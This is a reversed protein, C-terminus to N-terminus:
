TFELYTATESLGIRQNALKAIQSAVVSADRQSNIQYKGGLQVIDTRLQTVQEGRARVGHRQLFGEDALAIDMAHAGRRVLDRWPPATYYHSNIKSLLDGYLDLAQQPRM